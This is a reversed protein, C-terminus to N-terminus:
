ARGRAMAMCAAGIRQLWVGENALTALEFDAEMARSWEEYTTATGRSRTMFESGKEFAVAGLVYVLTEAYNM